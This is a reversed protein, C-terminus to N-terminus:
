SVCRSDSPKRRTDGSPSGARDWGAAAHVGSPSSQPPPPPTLAKMKRAGGWGRDLGGPLTMVVADTAVHRHVPRRVALSPNKPINTTFLLVHIHSQSYGCTHTRSPMHVPSCVRTQALMQHPHTGNCTHTHTHMVTRTITCVHTTRCTSIYVFPHSLPVCANTHTSLKENACVHRQLASTYVYKHNHACM